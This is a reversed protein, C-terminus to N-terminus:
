ASAGVRRAIADRGATLAEDLRSPDKGGAEALDNRGGGGGGIIRALEKVLEGAGIKSKL